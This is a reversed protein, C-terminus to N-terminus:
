ILRDDSSSLIPTFQLGNSGNPDNGETNSNTGFRRNEPSNTRSLRRENATYKLLSTKRRKSKSVNQKRRSVSTRARLKGLNSTQSNISDNSSNVKSNLSTRQAGLQFKSEFRSKVKEGETTHVMDTTPSKPPSPM